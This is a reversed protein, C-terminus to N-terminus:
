TEEAAVDEEMEEELDTAAVILRQPLQEGARVALVLREEAKEIVDGRYIWVHVGIMGYKTHAEAFGYDIDARLTHLPVKGEMMSEDRALEAGGLRGSIIIKIGQAGSSMSRLIAQRMARRWSVRREIQQAVSEAVLQAELEPNEVERVTIHIERGTAAELERRLQDVGRGRHGIVIGPRAAWVTAIILNAKREIEVRSVGADKCRRHIHERITLDELLYDRYNRDSYWRSAWEKNIGIRLGIPNVKQGM